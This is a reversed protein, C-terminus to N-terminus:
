STLAQSTVQSALTEQLPDDVRLVVADFAERTMHYKALNNVITHLIQKSRWSLTACYVISPLGKGTFALVFDISNDEPYMTYKGSFSCNKGFHLVEELITAKFCNFFEEFSFKPVRTSAQWHEIVCMADNYTPNSLQTFKYLVDSTARAHSLCAM